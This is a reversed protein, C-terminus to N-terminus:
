APVALRLRTVARVALRPSAPLSPAARFPSHFCPRASTAHAAGLGIRRRSPSPPPPPFYLLPRAATHNVLGVGVSEPLPISAETELCELWSRVNKYDMILQFVSRLWRCDVEMGSINIRVRFFYPKGGYQFWESLNVPCGFATQLAHKVSWPTGKRRHLLLSMQVLERKAQTNVAAEYGEVHLQWALLDLAEPPLEALSGSLGALRTLPPLMPVPDIFGTDRALRAYVLVDPIARTAANLMHDLADAARQVTPDAAISRTLLELFPTSGLYKSM